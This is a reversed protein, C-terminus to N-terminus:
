AAERQAPYAAEVIADLADMLDNALKLLANAEREDEISEAGAIALVLARAQAAANEIGDIHKTNM